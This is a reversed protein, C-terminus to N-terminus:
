GNEENQIVQSKIQGDPLHTELQDGVEVEKTSLLPQGNKYTMSYGRKLTAEPSLLQSVFTLQELRQHAQRLSFRIQQQLEAEAFELMRHANRLLHQSGMATQQAIQGLHYDKQHLQQISLEKALQGLEYIRSEFYMNRNIVFDAVATPTKLAQHAVMDLITEDIEHGIGTFVPIPFHAVTECLALDDFAMLDLRAGGGRIIVIADFDEARQAIQALRKIMEPAVRNGQLAVSFLQTKFRYALDNEALQRIFDQYGAAKESSLVAIKQLVAPLNIQRNRDLLGKERLVQINEQRQLELKGLTYAPDIDEVLMQLGYVEHYTVRIRLLVAVGEQLVQDIVKGLRRRQRQYERAWLIADARAITDTQGEGKQALSLYIHGRSAKVQVLECSVWMPEPLNLAVVRRIFENLEYLSYSKM